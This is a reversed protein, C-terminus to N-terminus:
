FKFYEGIGQAILDEKVGKEKAQIKEFMKQPDLYVTIGGNDESM